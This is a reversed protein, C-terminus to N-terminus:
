GAIMRGLTGDRRSLAGAVHLLLLGAMLKTLVGHLAFYRDETAESPTVPNPLTLGWVQVDIGSAASAVYGTLPVALLLLYLTVHVARALTAKWGQGMPAPPPSVRHWVLRLVVLAWITVGISKHWTFLMYNGLGVEMRAIYTGFGLMGIVALAIIWHLARTVLGFSHPGNAFRM